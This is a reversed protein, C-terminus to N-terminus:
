TMLIKPRNANFFILFGDYREILIFYHQPDFAIESLRDSSQAHDNSKKRESRKYVSICDYQRACFRSSGSKNQERADFHAQALKIFDTKPKTLLFKTIFCPRINSFDKEM